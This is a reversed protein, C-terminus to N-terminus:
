GNHVRWYLTSIGVDDITVCNSLAQTSFLGLIAPILKFFFYTNPNFYVNLPDLIILLYM